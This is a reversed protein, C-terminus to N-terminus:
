RTVTGRWAGGGLGVAAPLVARVAEGEALAVGAVEVPNSGPLRVIEAENGRITVSIHRRSVRPGAGPLALHDAGVDPAARGLAMPRGEPLGISGAECVVRLGSERETSEPAKPAPKAIRDARMTIEGPVVPAQALDKRHRVRLVGRGENLEDGEDVVLAVLFGEPMRADRRVIEENLLSLLDTRLADEVDRLRDHDPRSLFIRYENWLWARGQVDTFDCADMVAVIAQALAQGDVTVPAPARVFISEISKGIGKRSRRAKSFDVLFTGANAGRTIM